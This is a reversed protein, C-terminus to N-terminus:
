LAYVEGAGNEARGSFLYLFDYWCMGGIKDWEARIYRREESFPEAKM